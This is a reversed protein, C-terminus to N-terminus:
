DRTESIDFLQNKTYPENINHTFLTKPSLLKVAKNQIKRYCSVFNSAWASCGYWIFPYFIAFYLLRIIKQSVLNNIRRLVGLSRSLKLATIIQIHKGHYIKM